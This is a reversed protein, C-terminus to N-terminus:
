AIGAEDMSITSASSVRPEFDAYMYAAASLASSHRPAAWGLDDLDDFTESRELSTEAPAVDAPRELAAEAPRSLRM